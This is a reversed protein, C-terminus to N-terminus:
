ERSCKDDGKIRYVFMRNGAFNILMSVPAAVVGAWQENWSYHDTMLAVIGTSAALSVLNVAIFAAIQSGRLREKQKFTWRTNLLLSLAMGMIYGIVWAPPANLGLQVGVTFISYSFATNLAGIMGFRVLQGFWGTWLAKVRDNM